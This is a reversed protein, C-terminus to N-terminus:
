PAFKRRLAPLLPDVIRFEDAAPPRLGELRSRDLLRRGQEGAAFEVLLRRLDEATPLSPDPRVFLILGPLPASEALLRLRRRKEEPLLPPITSPLIAAEVEGRLLVEALNPESSMFQLRVDREDDLGAERLLLRGLQTILASADLTAIRAGKLERVQAIGAERAVFLQARIERRSVVLPRYGAEKELLRGAGPSILVLDYAGALCRRVFADFGPATSAEVPQQLREALHARLPEYTELLTATPLYPLLGLQLPPRAAAIATVLM